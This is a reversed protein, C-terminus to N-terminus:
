TFSVPNAIYWRLSNNVPGNSKYAKNSKVLKILYRRSTYIDMDCFDAIHRTKPWLSQPPLTAPLGDANCLTQLAVLVRSIRDIGKCKNEM